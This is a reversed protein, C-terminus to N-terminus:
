VLTDLMWAAPDDLSTSKTGAHDGVSGPLGAVGAMGTLRAVGAMCALAAVM